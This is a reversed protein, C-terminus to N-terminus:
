YNVQTNDNLEYTFGIGLRRFEPIMRNFYQDIWRNAKTVRTEPVYVIDMPRLYFPPGATDEVGYLTSSYDLTYCERRGDVFRIVLVNQVRAQDHNFGGAQAIAHLATMPQSLPFRGPEKVAGSVFVPAPTRVIVAADKVQLQLGAMEVIDNRLEGATKGAAVVEGLVPLAIRGDRRITQETNLNPAGSFLISLEDGAVLRMVPQPVRDAAGPARGSYSRCGSAALLVALLGVGTARLAAPRQCNQGPNTEKV